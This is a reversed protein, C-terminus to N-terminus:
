EPKQKAKRRMKRVHLRNQIDHRWEYLGYGVIGVVGIALVLWTFSSQKSKTTVDQVTTLSGNTTKRCRNTQPNREQGTACSSPTTTAGLVARCRNTNPNREQGEQCAQLPPTAAASTTARCRGTTPNREQGAACPPPLTDVAITHCRGTDPNREKGVPCAQSANIAPADSILEQPASVNAAGPSPQTTAQWSGNLFAWAQGDPMNNPYLVGQQSDSTTLWVTQATANPLVIGSDTDSFARYAGPALLEDPLEFSVHDTSDDGIHLSCEKLSVPETTSNQVEIFENGTDIGTPNPLLESLIVGVCPPQPPTVPLLLDGSLPPTAVNPSTFTSRGVYMPDGPMIRQIADGPPIEASKWWGSLTVGSGWTVADITAGALDVIRVHGGSHALLGSSSTSDAGFYIDADPLYDHYSLLVYGHAAVIGELTALIRTPGSAGANSASLYQVQWGSVDVFQDGPNYLEIFEKTGDTTNGQLGDTQLERIILPPFDEPVAARATGSFMAMNASVCLLLSMIYFLLKKRM